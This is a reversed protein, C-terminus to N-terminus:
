GKLAGSTLGEIFRKQLLSFVLLIPAVALITFAMFHGWSIGRDDQLVRVLGVQVTRMNEESTLTMGILFDNWVFIFIVVSIAALGPQILPLIVRYMAGPVTCGDLLAAEELDRPVMEVFGKIFWITQPILWASYVLIMFPYSNLLKTRIALLYIPIVISIGPIMSTALIALLIAQKGRFQFRAAAYAGPTAALLSLLITGASLILSNLFFRPTGGRHQLALYHDFTVPNPLWRPPYTAITADTKISTLLGWVLPALALVCGVSLIIYTLTNIFVPSVRSSAM